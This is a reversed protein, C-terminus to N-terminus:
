CLISKVNTFTVNTTIKLSVSFIFGKHMFVILISIHKICRLELWYKACKSKGKGESYGILKDTCNCRRMKKEVNCQMLCSSYSYHKFAWLGENEDAFKCKRSDIPISRVDDDAVEMIVNYIYINKKIFGVNDQLDHKLM